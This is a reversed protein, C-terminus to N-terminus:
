RTRRLATVVTWYQNIVFGTDDFSPQLEDQLEQFHGRIWEVVVERRPADLPSRNFLHELAYRRRVCHRRVDAVELGCLEALTRLFDPTYYRRRLPQLVAKFLSWFWYDRESCSTVQALRLEGGPKLVRRVECLVEAERTYHLMQRSVVVDFSEERFPIGEARAQAVPGAGGTSALFLMTASLDVGVAHANNRRLPKLLLGTGCGLDLVRKGEVGNTLISGLTPDFCWETSQDYEPAFADFHENVSRPVFNASGDSM